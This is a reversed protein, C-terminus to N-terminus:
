LMVVAALLAAAAMLGANLVVGRAAWSSSCNGDGAPVANSGTGIAVIDSSSGCTAAQALHVNQNDWDFVATGTM